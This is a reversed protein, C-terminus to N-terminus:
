PAIPSKNELQDIGLVHRYKLALSFNLVPVTKELETEKVVKDYKLTVWVYLKVESEGSYALCEGGFPSAEFLLPSPFYSNVYWLNRAKGANGFGVGQSVPSICSSGGWTM